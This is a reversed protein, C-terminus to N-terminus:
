GNEWVMTDYRNSFDKPMKSNAPDSKVWEWNIISGNKFSEDEFIVYAVFVSNNPPPLRRACCVMDAIYKYTYRPSVVYIYVVSDHNAEHFPRKLGKFITHAHKLGGWNDAFPINEHREHYGLNNVQPLTGCLNYILGYLDSVRGVSALEIVRSSAISMGILQGSGAPSPAYILNETLLSQIDEPM